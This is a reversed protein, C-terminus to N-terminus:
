RVTSSKIRNQSSSGPAPYRNLVTRCAQSIKAKNAFLCAAVRDRDPIYQGCVNFADDMCAQQEQQTHALAAVPLVTAFAVATLALRFNM